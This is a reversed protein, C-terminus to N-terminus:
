DYLPDGYQQDNRPNLDSDWNTDIFELLRELQMECLSVHGTINGESDRQELELSRMVGQYKLGRHDREHDIYSYTTINNLM